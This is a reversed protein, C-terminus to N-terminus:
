KKALLHFFFGWVHPRFSNITVEKLVNLMTTFFSDGFITVFVGMYVKCNTCSLSLLSFLIGLCPSSFKRIVMADEKRPRTFFSDGFMPVFVKHLFYKRHRETDYHSFLIGLCPSSFWLERAKKVRIILTFFPDGFMPVFVLSKARREMSNSKWHFFSGWVHPRFSCVYHNMLGGAFVHFFSGWVHPRFCCEFIYDDDFAIFHSFLIGLCPSSFWKYSQDLMVKPWHTFFPDGFM